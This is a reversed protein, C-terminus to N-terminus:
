LKFIAGHRLDNPLNFNHDVTQWQLGDHSQSVGYRGKTFYDYFMTIKDELMFLSPGEVPKPTIIDTINEFPGQPSNSQCLRIGKYKPSIHQGREDKFAMLYSSKYKIISADIINYGPDFLVKSETFTKFDKTTTFWIRHNRKKSFISQKVTSSWYIVYTNQISDYICEPAWTNVVGKINSMVPLLEQTTWSLLDKSTTHVISDSQWGNTSILHYLDQQDKIIFPDRLTSEGVTGELIALGNNFPQWSYGDASVLIYLAESYTKFYSFGYM